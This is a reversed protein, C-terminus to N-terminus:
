GEHLCSDNKLLTEKTIKSRIGLDGKQVLFTYNKLLSRQTTPTTCPVLKRPGEMEVTLEKDDVERYRGLM